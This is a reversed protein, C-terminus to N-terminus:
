KKNENLIKIALSEQSDKIKFSERNPLEYSTFDSCEGQFTLLEDSSVEITVITKYTNTTVHCSSYWHERKECEQKTIKLDRVTSVITNYCSAYEMKNDDLYHQWRPHSSGHAYSSTSVIALISALLLKKM